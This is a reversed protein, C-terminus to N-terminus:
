RPAERRAARIRQLAQEPPVRLDEGRILGALVPDRARAALQQPTTRELADGRLGGQEAVVERALRQLRARRAEDDTAHVPDGLRSAYSTIDPPARFAAWLLAAFVVGGLGVALALPGESTAQVEGMLLAGLAGGFPGMPHRSEDFVVTGGEPLLARFLGPQSDNGRLFPANDKALGNLFLGPDSAFIARGKGRPVEVMVVHPGAADGEDQLGNQNTDIYAAGTTEALVRHEVGQAVGLSAPVNTTLSVNRAGLTANVQVISANVRYSTNDRLVRKDFNVGFAVGVPDAFGFDDAVIAVGGREVFATLAGVEGPSYPREVGAVMFVTREPADFADLAHPGAGLTEVRLGDQALDTALVTLGREDDLAISNRPEGALSAAALAWTALLALIAVGLVAKRARAWRDRPGEGIRTRAATPLHEVALGRPEQRPARIPEAM